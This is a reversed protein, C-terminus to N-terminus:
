PYFPKSISLFVSPKDQHVDWGVRVQTDWSRNSEGMGWGFSLGVEEQPKDARVSFVSQDFYLNNNSGYDISVYPKHINASSYDFSRVLEVSEVKLDVGDLVEIKTKTAVFQWRPLALPSEISNASPNDSLSSGNVIKTSKGLGPFFTGLLKVYRGRGTLREDGLSIQVMCFETKREKKHVDLSKRVRCITLMENKKDGWLSGHVGIMHSVPGGLEKAGGVILSLDEEKLNIQLAGMVKNDQRDINQRSFERELSVLGGYAVLDVSSSGQGISHNGYLINMRSSEDEEYGYTLQLPSRSLQAYGANFRYPKDNDSEAEYHMITTKLWEFVQSRVVFKVSESSFGFTDEIDETNSTRSKEVSVMLNEKHKERSSYVLSEECTTSPGLALGENQLFVENRECTFDVRMAHKSSDQHLGPSLDGEKYLQNQDFPDDTSAGQLSPPALWLLALLMLNSKRYFKLSILESM